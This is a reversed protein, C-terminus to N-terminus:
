ETAGHRWQAALAPIVAATADSAGRTQPAVLQWGQRRAIQQVAQATDSRITNLLRGRELAWQTAQRALAGQVQAAGAQLSQAADASTPLALPTERTDSPLPPPTTLTAPLPTVATELNQRERAIKQARSAAQAAQFQQLRQQSAAELQPQLASVQREVEPAVGALVDRRQQRLAAVQALAQRYQIQADQLPQDTYVNLQSKLAVIRFQLRTIQRAIDRTQHLAETQLGALRKAREQALQQQVQKRETREQRNFLLRDSDTLARELQREYRLADARIREQRQAALGPPEAPPPAFTQPAPPLPTFPFAPPPASRIQRAIRDLSVVQAWAPHLPLLSEMRVYRKPLLVLPGPSCGVLVCAVWLSALALRRTSKKSRAVEGRGYAIQTSRVGNM